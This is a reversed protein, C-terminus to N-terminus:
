SLAALLDDLDDEDPNTASSVVVSEAKAPQLAELFEDASADDGRGELAEPTQAVVGDLLADLDATGDVVEQYEPAPPQVM